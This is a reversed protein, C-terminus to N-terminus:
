SSTTTNGTGGTHPTNAPGSPNAASYPSSVAAVKARHGSARAIRMGPAASNRSGSIGVGTRGAPQSISTLFGSADYNDNILNGNRDQIGTLTGKLDFDLLM